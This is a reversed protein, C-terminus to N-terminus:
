FSTSVPRIGPPNIFFEDKFNTHLHTLRLTSFVFVGKVLSYLAPSM